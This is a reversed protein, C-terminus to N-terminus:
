SPGMRQAKKGGGIQEDISDRKKGSTARLVSCVSVDGSPWGYHVAGRKKGCGIFGIFFGPVASQPLIWVSKNENKEEWWAPAASPTGRTAKDSL